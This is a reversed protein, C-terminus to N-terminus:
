FGAAWVTVTGDQESSFGGGCTAPGGVPCVLLAPRHRLARMLYPLGDRRPGQEDIERKVESLTLSYVGFNSNSRRGPYEDQKLKLRSTPNVPARFFCDDKKKKQLFEMPRARYIM